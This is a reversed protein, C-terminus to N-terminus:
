LYCQDKLLKIMKLLAEDRQRVTKATQGPPWTYFGQGAKAGLEGRAVKDQILQLPETSRDLKPLLYSQIALTLDLGGLDVTELPGVVPLRLGFGLRAILDVDKPSAIGQAVIAIAERRLAHQLRNGVFGAVDKKVLVPCKGADRFLKFTTKITGASAHDGPVIEVLPIIHPPNWFHTILFQEPRDLASAMDGVCFSSTNSAIVARAPCHEEMQRLVERKLALDEFVAEFIFDAQSAADILNSVLKIRAPVAVAEDKSVLGHDLFTELNARIRPIANELIKADSDTLSVQFGALAFVQAIGHGMTGAGIVAINDPKM